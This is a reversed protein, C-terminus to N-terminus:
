VHRAVIRDVAGAYHGGFLTTHVLLPYLNYLDRRIEFFGPALPRREHYRAFFADGFTGFLTSFALEIEPDAYYVAPDVFGAIRGDRVLVNGGWMDGHILSAVPPEDIYRELKGCLGELDAFSTAAYRGADLARRGMALLRQERFFDLWRESWPNPQPLPGILTDRELGFRPATIDHLTALLDAAHREANADLPGATAIYEIVLLGDDAHLVAPVPLESHRHLYDLMWGELALNGTGSADLKAVCTGGGALEVKYIEAICGGSLPAASVPEAGTAAAIAEAVRPETLRSNPPTAGM